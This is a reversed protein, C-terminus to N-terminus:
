RFPIYLGPPTYYPRPAYYVPPPPRGYYGGYYGCGYSRREHWREHGEHRGYGHDWYPRALAPGSLASLGVLIALGASLTRTM